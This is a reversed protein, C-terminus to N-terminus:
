HAATRMAREVMPWGAKRREHSDVRNWDDWGYGSTVVPAAGQAAVQIGLRGVKLTGVSGDGKPVWVMHSSPDTFTLLAWPIRLEVLDKGGAVTVRGDFAKAAPNATGWRLRGVDLLEVARKEGTGPVTYPRNLILQPSVWAGSGPDLDSRKVPVYHRTVGYLWRLPDTSASQALQATRGPGVSLAVDADPDVGLRGPLGVNSGPRVDFGLQFPTDGNRRVLLYLWSPDHVARVERIPGPGEYIQQSQTRTWEKDSGDVTAIPTKGSEEAVIGFQEENTLASQWLQRRGAPQELDITNWTDKFWEDTYSFLMGGALGARQIDALLDADM